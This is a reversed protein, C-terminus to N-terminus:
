HNQTDEFNAWLGACSSHHTELYHGMMKRIGMIAEETVQEDRKDKNQQGTLLNLHLNHFALIEGTFIGWM